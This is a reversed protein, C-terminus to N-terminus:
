NPVVRRPHKEPGLADWDDVCALHFTHHSQGALFYVRILGLGALGLRSRHVVVDKAVCSDKVFRPAEDARHVNRNFAAANYAYAGILPQVVCSGEIKRTEPQHWPHEITM